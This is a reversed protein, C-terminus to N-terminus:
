GALEDYGGGQFQLICFGNGFPDAVLAMRGWAHEQVPGEQSAGATLARALADDLDDTVLDLHVPTWHRRYSRGGEAGAFPPKDAGKELLFIPTGAGLLEVAATGFRRGVTLAFSHCYFAVARDLNEVDINVLLSPM